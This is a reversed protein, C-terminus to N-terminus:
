RSPSCFVALGAEEQREIDFFVPQVTNLTTGIRQEAVIAMLFQRSSSDRVDEFLIHGHCALLVLFYDRVFYATVGQPVRLGHVQKLGPNIKYVDTIDQAM